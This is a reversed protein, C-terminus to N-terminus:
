KNLILNRLDRMEDPWSQGAIYSVGDDDFTVRSFRNEDNWLSLPLEIRRRLKETIQGKCHKSVLCLLQRKQEDNLAAPKGDKADCILKKLNMVFGKLTSSGWAFAWALPSM